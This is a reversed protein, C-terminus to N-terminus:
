GILLMDKFTNCDSKNGCLKGHLLTRLGSSFMGEGSQDANTEALKVWTITIGQQQDSLSVPFM